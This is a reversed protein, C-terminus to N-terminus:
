IITSIKCKINFYKYAPHRGVNQYFNKERTSLADYQTESFEIKFNHMIRKAAIKRYKICIPEQM